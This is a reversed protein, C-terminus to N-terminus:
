ILTALFLSKLSRLLTYRLSNILWKSSVDYWLIIITLRWVPLVTNELFHVTTATGSTRTEDAGIKEGSSHPARAIAAHGSVEHIDANQQVVSSTPMM